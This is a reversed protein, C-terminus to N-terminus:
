SVPWKESFSGQSSSQVRSLPYFRFHSRKISRKLYSDRVGGGKMSLLALGSVDVLYDVKEQLLKM